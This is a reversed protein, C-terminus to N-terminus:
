SKKKLISISGVFGREEVSVKEPLTVEDWADM